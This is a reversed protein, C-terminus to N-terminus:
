ASAANRVCAGAWADPPELGRMFVRAAGFTAIGGRETGMAPM